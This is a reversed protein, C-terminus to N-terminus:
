KPRKRWINIKGQPNEKSTQSSEPDKWDLKKKWGQDKGWFNPEELPKEELNLKEEEERIRGFVM